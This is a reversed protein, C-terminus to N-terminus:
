YLSTMLSARTPWCMNNVYYNTFRLGSAAIADLAPTEIEGGYCGLDSYGMDDSIILIINPRSAGLAAGASFIAVLMCHCLRSFKM